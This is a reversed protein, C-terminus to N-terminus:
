KALSGRIAKESTHAAVIPSVPQQQWADQQPGPGFCDFQQQPGGMQIAALPTYMQSRTQPTTPRARLPYEASAPSKMIAKM